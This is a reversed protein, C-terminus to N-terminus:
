LRSLQAFIRQEFPGAPILDIKQGETLFEDPIRWKSWFYYIISANPLHAGAEADFIHRADAHCARGLQDASLDFAMRL